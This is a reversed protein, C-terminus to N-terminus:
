IASYFREESDQEDSENPQGDHGDLGPQFATPQGQAMKPVASGSSLFNAFVEDM